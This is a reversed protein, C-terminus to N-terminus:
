AERFAAYYAAIDVEDPGGTHVLVRFRQTLTEDKKLVFPGDLTFCCLMSGYDRVFYPSPPNDPHGMLTVGVQRGAVEGSYDVWDAMQGMTGEENKQGNSNLIKGGDEVDMTDAVRVGLYAHNERAFTVDGSDPSLTSSVDLVHVRDGPTWTIDRQESLVRQGSNPIWGNSTRLRVTGDSQELQADELVIDGLNPRTPNNDHFFNTGNVNAHGIFISRHHNYRYASSITVQRGCPTHVPYFNPRSLRFDGWGTFGKNYALALRGDYMFKFRLEEEVVRVETM